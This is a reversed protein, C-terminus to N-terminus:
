QGRLIKKVYQWAVLSSGWALKLVAPWGHRRALRSAQGPRLVIKYYLLLIQWYYQRVSLFHPALVLHALDWKAYDTRAFLADAAYEPYIDTGPLPTLPQLNVFNIGLRRLWRYLGKFDDKTYDPALIMTAYIEIGLDQLIAVAKESTAVDSKKNFSELAEDRCSELGIIVARLGAERLRAMLAPHAAIFDARGYVLYKKQLGQEQQGRCFAELREADLLFDDDVIYVEKEPIERLEELVEALPRALYSGGTVQRCFCFNCAYPCGYSTKILACPNHFMYYYQSRYRSTKGRDPRVHPQCAAKKREAGERYLGTLHKTESGALLAEVLSTFDRTDGSVGIYDIQPSVFAEPVVEAHVGGVAVRCAPLVTKIQRAYDKIIGVHTVRRSGWRCGGPM